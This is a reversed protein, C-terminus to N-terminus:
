KQCPRSKIAESLKDMAIAMKAQALLQEANLELSKESLSILKARSEAGKEVHVTLREAYLKSDALRAEAAAAAAAAAAEALDSKESVVNLITKYLKVIV